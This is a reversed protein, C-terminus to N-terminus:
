PACGFSLSAPQPGVQLEVVDGPECQEPQVLQQGTYRPGIVRLRMPHPRRPLTMSARLPQEPEDDISLAHHFMASVPLGVIRLECADPPPPEPPPEGAVMWAMWVLLGVM